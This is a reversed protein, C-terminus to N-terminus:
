VARGGVPCSLQFDLAVNVDVSSRHVHSGDRSHRGVHLLFIKERADKGDLFLKVEVYTFM